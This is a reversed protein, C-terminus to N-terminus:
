RIVVNPGIWTDAGIAVGSEIITFPGITVDNGIQAESDVLARDDIM